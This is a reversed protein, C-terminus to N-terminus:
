VDLFPAAKQVTVPGVGKVRKIESICDFPGNLAIYEVIRSARKPGIGRVSQLVGVSASNLPVRQGLALWPTEGVAFNVSGKTTGKASWIWKTPSQQAMVVPSVRQELWRSAFGFAVVTVMLTATSKGSM